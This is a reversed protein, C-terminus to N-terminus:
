TAEKQWVCPRVTFLAVRGSAAAKSATFVRWRRALSPAFNYRMGNDNKTEGKNIAMTTNRRKPQGGSFQRVHALAAQTAVATKAPNRSTVKGRKYRPATSRRYALLWAHVTQ